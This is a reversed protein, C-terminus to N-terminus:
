GGEGRGMGVASAIIPGHVVTDPTPIPDYIFPGYRQYTGARGGGTVVARVTCHRRYQDGGTRVRGGGCRRRQTPAGAITSDGPLRGYM